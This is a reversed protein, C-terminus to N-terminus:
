FRPSNSAAREMTGWSMKAKRLLHVSGEGGFYNGEDSYPAPDRRGMDACNCGPLAPKGGARPNRKAKQPETV